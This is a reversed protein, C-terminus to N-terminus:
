LKRKFIVWRKVIKAEKFIEVAKINVLGTLVDFDGTGFIDFTQDARM